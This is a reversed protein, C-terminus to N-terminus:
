GKCELGTPTPQSSGAGERRGQGVSSLRRLRVAYSGARDCGVPPRAEVLRLRLRLRASYMMAAATSLFPSRSTSSLYGHPPFRPYQQTESHQPHESNGVVKVRPRRHTSLYALKMEGRLRRPYVSNGGERPRKRVPCYSSRLSEASYQMETRRSGTKKRAQVSASLVPQYLPRSALLILPCANIQHLHTHVLAAPYHPQGHLTCRNGAAGTIAKGHCHSGFCPGWRPLM